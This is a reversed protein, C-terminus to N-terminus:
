VNVSRQLEPQNELIRKEQSFSRFHKRGRPIAGIQPQEEQTYVPRKIAGLALQANEKKLERLEQKLEVIEAELHNLYQRSVFLDALKMHPDYTM